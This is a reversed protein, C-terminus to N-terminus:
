RGAPPGPGTEGRRPRNSMASEVRPRSAMTTPPPGAGPMLPTMLATVMSAMSRLVDLHDAEEVPELQSTSPCGSRSVMGSVPISRTLRM